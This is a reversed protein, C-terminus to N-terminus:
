QAFSGALVRTSIVLGECVTLFAFRIFVSISQLVYLFFNPITFDYKNAFGKPHKEAYQKQMSKLSDKM